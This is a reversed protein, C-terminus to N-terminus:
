IKNKQFMSFFVYGAQVIDYVMAMFHASPLACANHNNQYQNVKIKAWAPLGTHFFLNQYIQRYDPESEKSMMDLLQPVNQNLTSDRKTTGMDDCIQVIFGCIKKEISTISAADIKKLKGNSTNKQLTNIAKRVDPLFNSVVLEVSNEDYTVKEEKLIKHAYDLVFEKPMTKMEFMTLRSILPDIIKSLYNGTVIFRSNDAYTEMMNRLIAQANQTVYDFEDIYVIKLKSKYPPSKLFGQVTTRMNEVGTADSGNLMLGDMDCKVLLDYIIRALTTKGSGPPGFLGLHPIEGKGICTNMFQKQDDNLVVDNISRPRWKEVWLQDVLNDNSSFLM